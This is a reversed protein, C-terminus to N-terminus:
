IEGRGEEGQGHQLLGQRPSGPEDAKSSDDCSAKVDRNGNCVPCICLEINDSLITAKPQLMCMKTDRADVYFYDIEGAWALTGQTTKPSSGLVHCGPDDMKVAKRDSLNPASAFDFMDLLPFANADRKNMAPLNFKAEIFRTM